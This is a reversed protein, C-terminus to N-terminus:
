GHRGALFLRCLWCIGMGFVWPLGDARTICSYDGGPRDGAKVFFPPWKVACDGVCASRGSNADDNDFVYLTIGKPDVLIGDKVMAPAAVAGAPATNVASPATACGALLALALAVPTLHRNM